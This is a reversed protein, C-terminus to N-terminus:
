IHILSLLLAIAKRLTNTLFQAENFGNILNPLPSSAASPDQKKLKSKWAKNVFILHVNECLPISPLLKRWAVGNKRLLM